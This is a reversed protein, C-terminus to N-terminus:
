VALWNKLYRGFELAYQMQYFIGSAGALLVIIGIISAIPGNATQTSNELLSKIFVATQLGIVGGIQAILQTQSSDKDFFYGTISIAIILLPPLSFITFYAIAAALQAANDDSWAQFSKSILQWIDILGKKITRGGILPNFRAKGSL